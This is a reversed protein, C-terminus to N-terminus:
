ADANRMLSQIESTHEESRREGDGGPQLIGNAAIELIDPDVAREDAPKDAEDDVHHFHEASRIRRADKQCAARRTATKREHTHGEEEPTEAKAGALKRCADSGPEARPM